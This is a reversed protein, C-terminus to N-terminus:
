DLNNKQLCDTLNDSSEKVAKNLADNEKKLIDNILKQIDAREERKGLTKHSNFGRQLLLLIETPAQDASRKALATIIANHLINQEALKAMAEVHEKFAASCNHPNEFSQTSLFLTYAILPFLIKKM